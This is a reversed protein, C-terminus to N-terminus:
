FCNASTAGNTAMVMIAATSRGKLKTTLAFTGALCMGRNNPCYKEGKEVAFLLLDSVAEFFDHVGNIITIRIV